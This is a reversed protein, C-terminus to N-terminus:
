TRQNSPCSCALAWGIVTGTVSWGAPRVAHRHYSRQACYNQNPYWNLAFSHGQMIGGHVYGSSLPGANLDAYSYRYAVEWAGRGGCLCGDADRVLFANEYPGQSGFYYRSLTGFKKDYARNEGTLTYAVQLYGGNFVYDMIPKAAGTTVQANNLFNWGYEAQLSFPGRIYLEELGLLWEQNCTISGTDIM